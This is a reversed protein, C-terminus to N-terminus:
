SASKLTDLSYLFTGTICPLPDPYRSQLYDVTAAIGKQPNDYLFWSRLAPDYVSCASPTIKIFVAHGGVHTHVTSLTFAGPHNVLYDQIAQSATERTGVTSYVPHEYRSFSSDEMRKKVAQELQKIRLALTEQSLQVDALTILGMRYRATQRTMLPNSCRLYHFLKAPDLIEEANIQNADLYTKLDLASRYRNEIFQATHFFTADNKVHPSNDLEGQYKLLTLSDGLCTGGEFIHNLHAIYDAAGADTFRSDIQQLEKFPESQLFADDLKVLPFPDSPIRQTWLHKSLWLDAGDQSNMRHFAQTLPELVHLSIWNQIRIILDLLTTSITSLTQAPPSLPQVSGIASM